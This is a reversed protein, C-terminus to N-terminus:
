NDMAPALLRVWALRAARRQPCAKWRKRTALGRAFTTEKAPVTMAEACVMESGPPVAMKVTEDVKGGHPGLNAGFLRQRATSSVTVVRLAVAHDAAVPRSSVTVVLTTGEWSATLRPRLEVMPLRLVVCATKNSSQRGSNPECKGPDVSNRWAFLRLQQSHDVQLPLELTRKVEGSADPGFSAQYLTEGSPESTIRVRLSDDTALSDAVFSAKLSSGADTVNIAPTSFRRDKDAPNAAAVFLIVGLAALAAGFFLQRRSNAFESAVAEFSAVELVSQVTQSIFAANADTAQAEDLKTKDRLYADYAAKRESIAKSYENALATVSGYGSMLVDDDEVRARVRDARPLAALKRLNVSGAAAVKVAAAIAWAIGVLAVLVGIAALAFRLWNGPALSGISSLQSGAILAGGVAAFAGILWKSTDRLRDAANSLPPATGGPASEDAM